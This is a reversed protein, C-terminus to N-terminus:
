LCVGAAAAKRQSLPLSLHHGEEGLCLGREEVAAGPRLHGAFGDGFLPGHRESVFAQQIGRTVVVTKEVGTDLYQTHAWGGEKGGVRERERERERERVCVCVCVCVCM